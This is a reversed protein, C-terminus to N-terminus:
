KNTILRSVLTQALTANSVGSRGVTTDMMAKRLCDDITEYGSKNYPSIIAKLKQLDKVADNSSDVAQFELPDKASYGKGVIKDFDSMPKELASQNIGAKEFIRGLKGRTDGYIRVNTKMTEAANEAELHPRVAKWEQENQVAQASREQAAKLREDAARVQPDDEVAIGRAIRAPQHQDIVAGGGRSGPNEPIKGGELTEIQQSAEIDGSPFGIERFKGGFAKGKYDDIYVSGTAADKKFSFSDDSFITDLQKYALGNRKAFDHLIEAIKQNMKGKFRPDKPDLGFAEPNARISKESLKWLNDGEKIKVAGIEEFQAKSTEAL